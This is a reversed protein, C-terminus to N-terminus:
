RLGTNYLNLNLNRVNVTTELIFRRHYDDTNTGASDSITPRRYNYINAPVKGSFTVFRNATRGLLIVRVQRIRNVEDDTWNSNWPKFGDLQGDDNLDGNYEFQLNEINQALPFHVANNTMYLVNPEGVYGDEGPTLGSYNGTVDLWYEKVNVFMILGGDFDNSQCPSGAMLGRPPNIGPALGPSMNFGENTGGASWTVHTLERIEGTRCTSSPNPLILVIKNMYFEAPYPYQEFSGDDVRVTVASGQYQQIRLNLPDDMNGLLRIRDPQVEGGQDENNFGELAYLTFEQPLGAGAMRIDRTLFYMASRVDHQLEAYQQQDVSVRNSRGYFALAGLIVVLMIASAVIIEMMTFGPQEKTNFKQRFFACRNKIEMLNNNKTKM